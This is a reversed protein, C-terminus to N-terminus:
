GQMFASLSITSATLLWVSSSVCFLQGRWPWLLVVSHITMCYLHFSRIHAIQLTHLYNTYHLIDGSHLWLLTPVKDPLCSMFADCSLWVWHILHNYNVRDGLEGCKKSRRRPPKVGVQSRWPQSHNKASGDRCGEVNKSFTKWVQKEYGQSQYCTCTCHTPHGWLTVLTISRITPVQAHSM